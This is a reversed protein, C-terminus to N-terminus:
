DPFSKCASATLASSFHPARIPPQKKVRAARHRLAGSTGNGDQSILGAREPCWREACGGSSPWEDIWDGVWFCFSLCVGIKVWPLLCWIICAHSCLAIIYKALPHLKLLFIFFLLLFWSQHCHFHKTCSIVILLWYQTTLESWHYPAQLKDSTFGIVLEPADVILQIRSKVNKLTM